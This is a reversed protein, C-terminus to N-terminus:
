IDGLAPVGTPASIPTTGGGVGMPISFGPMVGTDPLGEFIFISGLACNFAPILLQAALYILM